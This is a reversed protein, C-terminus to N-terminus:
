SKRDGPKSDFGDIHEDFVSLYQAKWRQITEREPLGLRCHEHLVSLMEVTPMLVGEGEEDLACREEDALIEEIRSVLEEEVEGAYDLARDNDFNGAGWTGLLFDEVVCSAQVAAKCTIRGLCSVM